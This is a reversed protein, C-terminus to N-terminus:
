DLFPRLSGRRFWCDAPKYNENSVKSCAQLQSTGLMDSRSLERDPAPEREVSPELRLLRSSFAMSCTISSRSRPASASSCVKSSLLLLRATDLKAEPDPDTDPVPDPDPDPDPDCNRLLLDLRACRILLAISPWLGLLPRVEIHVLSESAAEVEEWGAETVVEADPDPDPDPVYVVAVPVPVSLEPRADVDLRLLRSFSVM